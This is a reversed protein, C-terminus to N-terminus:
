SNITPWKKVYKKNSLMGDMFKDLWNSIESLIKKEMSFSIKEEALNGNKGNLYFYSEDNDNLYLNFSFFYKQSSYLAIVNSDAELDITNKDYLNEFDEIDENQSNRSNEECNCNLILEDLWWKGTPM